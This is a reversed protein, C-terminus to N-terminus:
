TPNFKRQIKKIIKQHYNETEEILLGINLKKRRVTGRMRYLPVGLITLTWRGGVQFMKM